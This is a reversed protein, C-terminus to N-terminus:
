FQRLHGWPFIPKPDRNNRSSSSIASGSSTNNSGRHGSGGPTRRSGRASNNSGGGSSSTSTPTAEKSSGGSSPHGSSPISATSANNMAEDNVHKEVIKKIHKYAQSDKQGKVNEPKYPPTITVSNFVLIDENKWDVEKDLTKSIARFLSQGQPSIGAKFAMVARKKKEVQDRLRTNLKATNLDSLQGAKERSEELVQVKSVMNLNILQIDNHGSLGSSSRCKLVIIKTKPDFALVEGKVSVESATFVSVTSGLSFYDSPPGLVGGSGLDGSNVVNGAVASASASSPGSSSSM